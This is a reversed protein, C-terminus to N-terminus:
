SKELKGFIFATVLAALDLSGLTGAVWPYGKELAIYCFILIIIIAFLAFYQGRATQSKEAKLSAIDMEILHDSNKEAMKLIREPADPIIKKYSELISPPPLPGIFSHHQLIVQNNAKKAQTPQEKDEKM